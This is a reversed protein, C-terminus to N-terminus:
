YGIEALWSGVTEKVLLAVDVYVGREIPLPVVYFIGNCGIDVVHALFQVIGNGFAVCVEQPIVPPKFFVYLYGHFSQFAHQSSSRM